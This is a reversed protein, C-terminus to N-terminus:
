SCRQEGKNRLYDTLIKTAFRIRKIYVITDCSLYQSLRSLVTHEAVYENAAFLASELISSFCNNDENQVYKIEPEQPHFDHM